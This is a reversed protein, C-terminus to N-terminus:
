LILANNGAAQSCNFDCKVRAWAVCWRRIDGPIRDCTSVATVRLHYKYQGNNLVEKGFLTTRLM